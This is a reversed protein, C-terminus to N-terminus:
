LVGQYLETRLESEAVTSCDNLYVEFCPKSFDLKAGSAPLWEGMLQGWAGGLGAYSGIYTAVAYRGGPIDIVSVAPDSTAFDSAVEACADSRLKDAPVSEPDDHSIMLGPGTMTVGNQQVWGMLAGFVAGIEPYPGVHRMAVVRRPAVSEQIEIHMKTGKTPRPAHPASAGGPGIHLDSPAPLRAAFGTAAFASPACGFAARFARSFAELSEYGADLAVDTVRQGSKLALAARELRIRRLFEGPSEGVMGAFMRSFHFASFGAVDALTTVTADPDCFAIELARGIAAEYERVTEDRV